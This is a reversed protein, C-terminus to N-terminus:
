VQSSHCCGCMVEFHVCCYCRCCCCCGAAWLVFLSPSDITKKVVCKELKRGTRNDGLFSIHSFRQQQQQQPIHAGLQNHGREALFLFKKKGAAEDCKKGRKVLKKPTTRRTNDKTCMSPVGRNRVVLNPHCTMHCQWGKKRRKQKWKEWIHLQLSSFPM